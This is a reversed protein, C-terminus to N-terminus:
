LTISTPKQVIGVLIHGGSYHQISLSRPETIEGFYAMKEIKTVRMSHGKGQLPLTMGGNSLV